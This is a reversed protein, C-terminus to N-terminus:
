TAPAEATATSTGPFIVKETTTTPLPPYNVMKQYDNSIFSTKYNYTQVINLYGAGLTVTATGGAAQAVPISQFRWVYYIHGKKAKFKIAYGATVAAQTAGASNWDLADIWVSENITKPKKSFKIFKYAEGPQLVRTKTSVIKFFENFMDCDTLRVGPINAANTNATTASTNPNLGSMNHLATGAIQNRQSNMAQSFWYEFSSKLASPANITGVGSALDTAEYPDRMWPLDKKARIGIMQIEVPCNDINTIHTEQRWSNIM